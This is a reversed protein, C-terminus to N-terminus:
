HRFQMRNPAHMIAYREDTERARGATVPKARSLANPLEITCLKTLIIDCLM